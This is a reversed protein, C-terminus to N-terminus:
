ALQRRLELKLRRGCEGEACFTWLPRVDTLCGIGNGTALNERDSLSPAWDFDFARKHRKRRKAALEKRAKDLILGQAEEDKM